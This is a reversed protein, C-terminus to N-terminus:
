VLRTFKTFIKVIASNQSINSKKEKKEKKKLFSIMHNKNTKISSAKVYSKIEWSIYVIIFFHKCKKKKKKKLM